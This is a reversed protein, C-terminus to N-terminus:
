GQLIESVDSVRKRLTVVTIGGAKAMRALTVNNNDEEQEMQCARYLVSTALAKPDKGYSISNKKVEDLMGMARKYMKQNVGANDVIKSIDQLM